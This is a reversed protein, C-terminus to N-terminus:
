IRKGNASSCELISFGEGQIIRENYIRHAILLYLTYVSREDRKKSSNAIDSWYQTEDFPTLILALSDFMDGSEADKYNTPDRRRLISGLGKELETILSQLKPDFETSWKSDRLLLPCYVKQLTHYLASVPSEMMSSVFIDQPFIFHFHQSDKWHGVKHMNDPTIVDPKKKYFMIVKDDQEGPTPLNNLHIRIDGDSRAELNMTLVVANGDDLFNNVKDDEALSTIVPDDSKLGFYQSAQNKHKM